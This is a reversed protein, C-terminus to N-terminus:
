RIHGEPVVGQGEEILELYVLLEGVGILSNEDVVGGGGEYEELLDCSVVGILEFM